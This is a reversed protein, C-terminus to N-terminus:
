WEVKGRCDRESTKDKGRIESGGKKKEWHTM